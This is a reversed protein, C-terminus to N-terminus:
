LHVPFLREVHREALDLLLEALTRDHLEPLSSVHPDFRDRGTREREVEREPDAAQRPSPDHLDEPRLRRALRRECGVDDGFRLAVTPHAGVDVGLM